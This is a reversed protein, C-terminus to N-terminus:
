PRRRSSPSPPSVSIRRRARRGAVRRAALHKRRRLHGEAVVEGVEGLLRRTRDDCSRARAYARATVRGGPERASPPRPPLADIRASGDSAYAVAADGGGGPTAAARSRLSSRSPADADVGRVERRAAGHRGGGVGSPAAAAAAAAPSWLGVRATHAACSGRPYRSPPPRRAPPAAIGAAARRRVIATSTADRAAAAAAVSSSARGHLNARRERNLLVGRLILEDPPAVVARGSGRRPPPAPPPARPPLM